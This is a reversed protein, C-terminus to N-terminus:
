QNNGLFASLMWSHKEFSQVMANLMDETRDDGEEAAQEMAQKLADMITKFDNLTTQVMEETTESGTAEKIHSMKLHEELTAVPKGGKTLIREAIEDLNLTVENYFEEFKTHLTFFSPGNVYWHYNHLKTYLVSNTAVLDNLQEILTKNAM